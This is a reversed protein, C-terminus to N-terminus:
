KLGITQFLEKIGLPKTYKKILAFAKLSDPSTMVELGFELATRRLNFENKEKDRSSTSINVFINFQGSKIANEIKETSKFAQVQLGKEQLYYATEEEASLTLFYQPFEKLINVIENRISSINCISLFIHVDDLLLYKKHAALCGKLLAEALSDGLAASEGTSKMEPSLGVEVGNLKETSFVPVKVAISKIKPYTNLYGLDKLKYGLMVKTAINIIPIGTVKALFPITRSARPNVEIVYPKGQHMVFQVNILGQINMALAIKRCYEEVLLESEQSIRQVPYINISDGSHVGSREWHEMIGPIFIDTGDCIADTELEIGNIYKDILIPYEQHTKFAITLYSKVEESTHCIEMGAGGLVYSPRVLVPYGLEEAAHIGEKLTRVNIGKPRPIDLKELLNDFCERDEALNIQEFGVGALPINKEHLFKALKIATQGGFQVFVYEPKEKLIIHYVDEETLPEFYLKDAIVFDTSVTEPNNNIVISEYGLEKLTNVAHVVSYDFEIGQGIRIPGSGIVLMKKRSTVLVEDEQDYCSYFYPTLAKFEGACTDVPKYVPFINFEKRKIFIDEEAVGILEAIAKDSFGKNKIVRLNEATFDSLTSNKLLEEQHVIWDIKEMFYYDIGTLECLRRWMFGRRLLEAVDFIRDDSAKVVYEKLEEVSRAASAPNSLGYRSIELSRIAKLFAHEFNRGIAMVEGTAMMKTGLTRIANPFKDFPWKPIKVVIYDLSPEFCAPTKGTVDNIIQDLSYGLAMKTAIRAIPYGTAKSALASSRSVRPNIEIIIYQFSKPDLAFQVNCAGVVGVASTIKIAASRLMQIEHDALTQCPAIVISDGTHIGVPDLNEMNCVSITNGKHDRMIEFEVEKWGKISKEVLAQCVPSLTLGKELIEKLAEPTDAIGGGTGGLTYAPRVIVPYGIHGAVNLGEEITHIVESEVIPEQIDQMLTRFLERDEGKKIADISTGLIKTNYKQPIGADHLDIALNLATQGGMNCIIGDPNENILIQEVTEISLPELYVKDASSHDTMITAPNPNLLLVEIGEEKLAHCAQTGSYDFEAAQGIIIPGSGIVLIKKLLSM